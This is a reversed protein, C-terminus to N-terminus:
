AQRDTLSIAREVPPPAGGQVADSLRLLISAARHSGAERLMRNVALNLLANGIYTRQAAPIDQLSSQIRRMVSQLQVLELDCADDIVVRTYCGGYSDTGM